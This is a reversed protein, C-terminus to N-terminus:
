MSDRPFVFSGPMIFYSAAFTGQRKLPRHTSHIRGRAEMSLHHQRQCQDPQQRM